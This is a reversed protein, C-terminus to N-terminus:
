KSNITADAWDAERHRIQRFHAVKYKRFRRLVRRPWAWMLDLLQRLLTQTVPHCTLLYSVEYEQASCTCRWGKLLHVAPPPPYRIYLWKGTCKLPPACGQGDGTSKWQSQGVGGETCKLYSREEGARYMTKSVNLISAFECLLISCKKLFICQSRIRRVNIIRVTTEQKLFACALRDGQSGRSVNM